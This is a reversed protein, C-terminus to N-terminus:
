PREKYALTRLNSIIGENRKAFSVHSFLRCLIIFFYLCQQATIRHGHLLQPHHTHLYRIQLCGRLLNRKVTYPRFVDIMERRVDLSENFCKAVFGYGARSRGSEVYGSKVKKPNQRLTTYGNCLRGLESEFVCHCVDPVKN